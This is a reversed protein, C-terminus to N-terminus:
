RSHTLFTRVASTFAEPQDSHVWHTAGKVTVRLTQPFYEEMTAADEDRVYPSREGAMWLVPGTFTSGALSTTPFDMVADLQGHLLDLNPEWAFGESTRMLNQLLFGRVGRQPIPDQLAADADARSTLSDLDVAKLSSLLHDFESRGSGVPVPSIDEVILRRVLHPHRLALVMAVKGGMSHGLLDIPGNQAFGLALHDAVADAMAIYDISETWASRGHNPLDVLLSQFEPQLAKAIAGFNKGRGFLGHLFVLRYEADDPGVTVSHVAPATPPTQSSM